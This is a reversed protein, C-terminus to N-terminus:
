CILCAAFSVQTCGIIVFPLNQGINRTKETAYKYSLREGSFLECLMEVKGSGNEEENKMM